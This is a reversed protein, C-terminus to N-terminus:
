NMLFRHWFGDYAETVSRFGFSGSTTLYKAEPPHVGTGFYLSRFGFSGSTTLYKAEPPHLGTGFAMM